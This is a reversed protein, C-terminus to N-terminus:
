STAKRQHFTINHGDPSTISFLRCPPYDQPELTIPVNAARIAALTEDLNVVELTLGAGGGGTAPFFNSVALAVGAIDYEIWWVGPAFELELGIKLGLLKGYFDRARAIDSVPHFVYAIEKVQINM